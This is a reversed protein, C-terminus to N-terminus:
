FQKTEGKEADPNKRCCLGYQVFWIMFLVAGAITYGIGYGQVEGLILDNKISDLCVKVPIGNNIDSFYYKPKLDCMGSCKFDKEIDGFYGLYESIGGEGDFDIGYDAYATELFSTCGQANTVTSSTNTASFGPGVHLTSYCVCGNSAVCYFTDASSYLERFSESISSDSDAACADDMASAIITTAVITLIGVVLLVLTCITLFAAFIWHVPCKRKYSVCSGCLCLLMLICGIILFSIYIINQIDFGILASMIAYISQQQAMSAFFISM